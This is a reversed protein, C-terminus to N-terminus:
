LKMKCSDQLILYKKCSDQLIIYIKCSDQLFGALFICQRALDQLVDQLIRALNTNKEVLSILPFPLLLQLAISNLQLRLDMEPRTGRVTQLEQPIPHGSTQVSDLHVERLQFARGGHHSHRPFTRKHHLSGM